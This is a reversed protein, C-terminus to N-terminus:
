QRKLRPVPQYEDGVADELANRGAVVYRSQHHCSLRHMGPLSDLMEDSARRSAASPGRLSSAVTMQRSQCPPWERSRFVSEPASM